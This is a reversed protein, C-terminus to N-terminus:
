LKSLEYQEGPFIGKFTKCDAANWSEMLRVALTLATQLHELDAIQGGTAWLNFTAPALTPHRLDCVPIRTAGERFYFQALRLHQTIDVQCFLKTDKFTLLWTEAM